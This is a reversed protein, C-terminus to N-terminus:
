TYKSVLIEDIKVVSFLANMCKQYVGLVDPVICQAMSSQKNYILANWMIYNNPDKNIMKQIIELVEDTPHVKPLLELYTKQIKDSEPNLRMAKEAIQLKQKEKQYLDLSFKMSVDKFEIYKLWEQVDKPNSKLHKLYNESEIDPNDLIPEKNEVILRKAAIFYRKYKPPPLYNINRFRYRESTRYRPCGPRKLTKVTFYTRFPRLDIYFDLDPPLVESLGKEDRNSKRKHKKKQKKKSGSAAERQNNINSTSPLAEEDTTNTIDVIKLADEKM